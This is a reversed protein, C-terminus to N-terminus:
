LLPPAVDDYYLSKQFATGPNVMMINIIEYACINFSTGNIKICLLDCLLVM